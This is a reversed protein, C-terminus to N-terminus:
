LDNRSHLFEGDKSNKTLIIIYTFTRQMKRYLQIYKHFHELFNSTSMFCGKYISTNLYTRINNLCIKIKQLFLNIVYTRVYLRLFSFKHFSSQFFNTVWVLLILHNLIYTFVYFINIMSSWFFWKGRWKRGKSTKSWEKWKVNRM